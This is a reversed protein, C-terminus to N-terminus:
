QIGMQNIVKNAIRNVEVFYKPDRKRAIRMVEDLRRQKAIEEELAISAINYATYAGPPTNDKVMEHWKSSESQVKGIRAADSCLKLLDVSELSYGESM